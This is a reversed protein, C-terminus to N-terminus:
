TLKVLKLYVYCSPNNTTKTTSVSLTTGATYVFYADDVTISGVGNDALGTLSLKGVLDGNNEVAVSDLAGGVAATKVVDAGVIRYTAGEVLPVVKQISTSADGIVDFPIVLLPAPNNPSAINGSLAGGFEQNVQAGDGNITVFKTNAM